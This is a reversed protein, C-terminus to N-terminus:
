RYRRMIVQVEDLWEACSGTFPEGAVVALQDRRHRVPFSARIFFCSGLRSPAM